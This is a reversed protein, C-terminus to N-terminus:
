RALTSNVNQHSLVLANRFVHYGAGLASADRGSFVKTIQELRREANILATRNPNPRNLMAMQARKTFKEPLGCRGVLAHISEFLGKLEM